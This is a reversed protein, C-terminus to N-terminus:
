NLYTTLFYKIETVSRELAKSHFAKPFNGISPHHRERYSGLEDFKRYAGDFALIKMPAPFGSSQLKKYAEKSELIDSKGYLILLPQEIPGTREWQPKDLVYKLNPYFAITAKFGGNPLSIRRSLKQAFIASSGGWSWGILGIRDKKVYNKNSLWIYGATADIVRQRLSVQQWDRMIAGRRSDNDDSAHECLHGRTCYHDIFLIVFGNKSLERAWWLQYPFIGGAGHLAILAPNPGASGPRFLLADLDKEDGQPVGEIVIKKGVSVANDYDKFTVANAFNLHTAIMVGHVFITALFSPKLCM